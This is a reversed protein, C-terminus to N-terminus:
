VNIQCFRFFTSSNLVLAIMSMFVFTLLKIVIFMKQQIISNRIEVTQLLM